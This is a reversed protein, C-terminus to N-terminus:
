RSAPINSAKTTPEAVNSTHWFPLVNKKWFTKLTKEILTLRDQWKEVTNSWTKHMDAKWGKRNQKQSKNKCIAAVVNWGFTFGHFIQKWYTSLTQNAVTVYCSTPLTAAWSWSWVFGAFSAIWLFYTRFIFIVVIATLDLRIAHADEGLRQKLGHFREYTQLPVVFSKSLNPCVKNLRSEYKCLFKKIWHSIHFTASQFHFQHVEMQPIAIKTSCNLVCKSSIAKRLLLQPSGQPNIEPLHFNWHFQSSPQDFVQPAAKSDIRCPKCTPSPGCTAAALMGFTLPHMLRRGFAKYASVKEHNVNHLLIPWKFTIWGGPDTSAKNVSLGIVVLYIAFMQM